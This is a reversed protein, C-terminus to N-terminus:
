AGCREELGVGLALHGQAEFVALRGGAGGYDDGGLVRGAIVLAFLFRLELGVDPFDDGRYQWPFQKGVFGDIVDIWGSGELDAPRVAIGPQGAAFDDDVGVAACSRM